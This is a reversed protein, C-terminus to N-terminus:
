RPQSWSPVMGDSYWGERRLSSSSSALAPKVSGSCASNTTGFVRGLPPSPILLLFTGTGTADVADSSPHGRRYNTHM